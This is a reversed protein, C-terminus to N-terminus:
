AHKETNSENFVNIAIGKILNRFNFGKYHKQNFTLWM